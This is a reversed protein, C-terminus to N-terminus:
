RGSRTSIDRLCHSVIATAPTANCRSARRTRAARRRCCPRGRGAVRVTPASAPLHKFPDSRRRRERRILARGSEVRIRTLVRSSARGMLRRNAHLRHGIGNRYPRVRRSRAIRGRAAVCGGRARPDRRERRQHQQRAGQDDEHAEVGAAIEGRRGGDGRDHQGLDQEDPDHLRAMRELPERGDREDRDSREPSYASSM